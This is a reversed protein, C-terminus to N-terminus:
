ASRRQTSSRTASSDLWDHAQASVFFEPGPEKLPGRQRRGFLPLKDTEKRRVFRQLVLGHPVLIDMERQFVHRAGAVVAVVEQSRQLPPEDDVPVRGAEDALDLRLDLFLLTSRLLP